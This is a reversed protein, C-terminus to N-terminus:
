IAYWHVLKCDVWSDSFDQKMLCKDVTTNAFKMLMIPWFGKNNTNRKNNTLSFM